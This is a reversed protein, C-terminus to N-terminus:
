RALREYLPGFSRVSAEYQALVHRRPRGRRRKELLDALAEEIVSQIQRGEDQALTRVAALLEPDLQTAFKMREAM